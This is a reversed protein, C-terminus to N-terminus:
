QKEVTLDGARGAPVLRWGPALQLTWGPGSARPGDVAAPGPVRIKSRDTSLLAHDAELTGWPGKARFVPYVTGDDGLPTM